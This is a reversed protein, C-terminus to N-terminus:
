VITITIVGMLAAALDDGTTAASNIYVSEVGGATAGNTDWQILLDQDTDASGATFVFGASLVGQTVALVGSTGSLLNGAASGVAITTISNLATIGLASLDIRYTQAAAGDYTIGDALTRLDGAGNTYVGAPSDGIATYAVTFGGNGTANVAYTDLGAGGTITVATSSAGIAFQDVGASGIITSIGTAGTM